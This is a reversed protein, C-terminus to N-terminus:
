RLRRRPEPVDQALMRLGRREAGRFCYISQKDDGVFFLGGSILGEGVLAKVIDVQLQDTDQFEDVFLLRVQNQWQRRTEAFQEDTLLRHAHALLDDFDIAARDFKAQEYSNAVEATLELLHLGNTAAIEATAPDFSQKLIKKLDNRFATCA